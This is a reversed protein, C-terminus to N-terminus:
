EHGTRDLPQRSFLLRTGDPSLYPSLLHSGESKLKTRKGSDFDVLLLQMNDAGTTRVLIAANKVSAAFSFSQNWKDLFTLSQPHTLSSPLEFALSLLLYSPRVKKLITRTAAIIIM